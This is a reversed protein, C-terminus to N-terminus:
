LIEKDLDAAFHFLCRHIKLIYDGLWDWWFSLGGGLGSLDVLDAGPIVLICPAGLLAIHGDGFSPYSQNPELQTLLTGCLPTFRHAARDGHGRGQLFCRAWSIHGPRTCRCQIDSM